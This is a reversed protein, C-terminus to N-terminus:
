ARENRKLEMVMKLNRKGNQLQSKVTKVEMQLERAIEEYSKQHLYFLEICKKQKDKLQQLAHELDRLDQEMETLTNEDTSDSEFVEGPEIPRINWKKKRLEMLCANCTVRYLWPKFSDIKYDQIKSYLKAFLEASIEQAANQNKMYKMSWGLVYHAYRKYLERFAAPVSNQQILQVLEDDTLQKYKRWNQFM